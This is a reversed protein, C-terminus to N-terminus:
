SPLAFFKDWCKLCSNTMRNIGRAFSQVRTNPFKEDLEKM